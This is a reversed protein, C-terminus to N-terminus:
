HDYFIGGSYTIFYPNNGCFKRNWTFEVEYQKRREEIAELKLIFEHGPTTQKKSTKKKSAGGECTEQCYGSELTQEVAYKNSCYCYSGQKTPFM